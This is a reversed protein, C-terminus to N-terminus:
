ARAGLDSSPVRSESRPVRSEAGSDRIGFESDRTESDRTGAYRRIVEEINLVLAVRGDGLISAGTVLAGALMKEDLPKIVLEQEGVLADVTLAFKRQGSTVVLCSQQPTRHPDHATSRADHRTAHLQALRVVTVLEDRVELLERTGARTIEKPDVRRLEQVMDLPAAYLTEGVRFLMSRLIALTLPLRLRITSGRGPTTELSVSGKLKRVAAQVADMGVGRGSIATVQGATSFGPEFILDIIEDTALRAAQDATMLGRQIARAAIAARDLGRGDDAVEIVVQNGQHFANLRVAGQPPKGAAVREAPTEIGHDIANRLIHGLPEALADVLAKDLETEAGTTELVVEKGCARAVDRVLRPFGRFLHEVPVMRIAMAARQLAHLTQSQFSLADSLHARLPDKAHRASFDALVQQLMSKGIVLEGVLDLLADVKGADVRLWPRSAANPFGLNPIPSEPNPPRTGLGSDRAELETCGTWRQVVLNATIGPVFLKASLTEEDLRSALAVEICDTEAWNAPQPACALVEGSQKLAQQFLEAAAARMPCQPAIKIAIHFVPVNRAIAEACASQQSESWTFRPTLATAVPSTPAPPQALKWIMARLPDGSPPEFGGQYAALMADFMDAASLVVQALGEPLRHPSLVDELEHALETLATFGLVASDGKLTHVIRRIERGCERDQPNAELRLAEDNLKELLEAASEFFIERMEQYPTM